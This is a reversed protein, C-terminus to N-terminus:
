GNLVLARKLNVVMATLYVQTEVAQLGRYLARSLGHWKKMEGFKREVSVRTRSCFKNFQKQSESLPHDRFAKYLIFNKIGNQQLLMDHDHSTYAKDAYVAKDNAEVLREFQQSDHVNAPTVTVQHILQTRADIGMHAKYGFTTKEYKKTFKADSDLLNGKEDTKGPRTQSKILTADVVKIVGEKILLGHRSLQRNITHFVEELLGSPEVRKRFDVLTNSEPLPDSLNAGLFAMFSLRDRAERVVERDSLNFWRELLLLKLMIVPDYGPKGARTAPAYVPDLVQRLEKFEILDNIRRLFEHTSTKSQIFGSVFDMQQGDHKRYM